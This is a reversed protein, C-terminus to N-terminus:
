EVGSLGTRELEVFSNRGRASQRVRASEAAESTRCSLFTDSLPMNHIFFTKRTCRKKKRKKGTLNSSIDRFAQPLAYDDCPTIDPTLQPSGLHDTPRWLLEDQASSSCVSAPSPPVETFNDQFRVFFAYSSVIDNFFLLLKYQQKVHREGFNSIVTPGSAIDNFPSHGSFLSPEMASSPIIKKGFLRRRLSFSYRFSSVRDKFNLKEKKRSKSAANNETAELKRRVHAGTLIHRDELLLKGFSTGSSVPASLSRVLSRHSSGGRVNRDVGAGDDHRFSRAKTGREDRTEGLDMDLVSYSRSHGGIEGRKKLVSKLRESVFGRSDLGNGHSRASESRVLLTGASERAHKAITRAIQKPDSPRESYPTEIGSGRAAVSGRRLMKGQMESKLRDRVEELFDEISGRQNESSCPSSSWSDRHDGYLRQDPGPKLVVIKTPASDRSQSSFPKMEELRCPEARDGGGKSTRQAPLKPPLNCLEAFRSSESLRATQWAVFEKKFRQLEEEQPHERSRPRGSIQENSEPYCMELRAQRSSSSNRSFHGTSGNAEKNSLKARANLNRKEVPKADSGMMVDMGMLRAVISPGNSQRTSPNKSIEESILKKMSAEFPYCNNEPWDEEVQYPIM